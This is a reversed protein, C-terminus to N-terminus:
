QAQSQGSEDHEASGCSRRGLRCITCSTCFSGSPGASGKPARGDADSTGSGTVSRPSDHAAQRRAQRSQIMLSASCIQEMHMLLNTKRSFTQKPHYHVFPM